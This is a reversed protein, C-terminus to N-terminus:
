KAKHYKAIKGDPGTLTLVDKALHTELDFTGLSGMELKLHKADTFKYSTNIVSMGSTLTVMGNRSFSITEKGDIKEWNGAVDWAPKLSCSAFLLAFCVVLCFRVTKM